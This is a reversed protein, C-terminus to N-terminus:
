GGTADFSAVDTIQLSFEEDAINLDYDISVTTPFHQTPDYSVHISAADENYADEVMDFVGEITELSSLTDASVAQETEVNVAQIIQGNQVTIRIPSTSEQSCECSRRWTFRYSGHLTESFQARATVLDDPAKTESGCGIVACLLIFRLSTM